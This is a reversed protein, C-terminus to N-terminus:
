IKSHRVLYQVLFLKTFHVFIKPNWMYLHIRLLPCAPFVKAEMVTTQLSKCDDVTTHLSSHLQCVVELLFLLITKGKSRWLGCSPDSGWVLFADRMWCYLAPQSTHACGRFSQQNECSQEQNMAKHLTVFQWYHSYNKTVKVKWFWKFSKLINTACM